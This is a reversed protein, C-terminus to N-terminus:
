QREPEAADPLSPYQRAPCATREGLGALVPLSAHSGRNYFRGGSLGSATVRRLVRTGPPPMRTVPDSLFAPFIM